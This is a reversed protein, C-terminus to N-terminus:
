QALRETVLDLPAALAAVSAGITEPRTAGPIPVVTRGQARVWLLAAQQPTMALEHGLDCLWPCARSIGAATRRGGLPAWALFPIDHDACHRAEGISRTFMPSLENEVAAVAVLSRAIDIEDVGVNSVGVHRVKGALQLDRLAGVSEAYPVSPDPRHLLYLGISDVGLA